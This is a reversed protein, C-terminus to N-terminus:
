VAPPVKPNKPDVVTVPEVKAPPDGEEDDPLGFLRNIILQKNDHSLFDDTTLDFTKLTENASDLMEFDESKFSTKVGFLADMVPQIISFYYPKLGREVAKTDAKGTDSMGKSTQGTIWSAPLGLYFSQKAVILELAANTATLDPKATELIDKADMMVDKGQQLGQAMAVAQTKVDASDSLGTSSRLENFKLQIAKSLNASKYLGGVSCYELASYFRIMDSKRFNQFTIFVGRDSSAKAKYDAKIEVQEQPTAKRVVKVAKDFVLFLESKENMAKALMTVIGDQTESGLCNDWLFKLDEDTIGTTRELVATLIRTYINEVDVSVFDAQRVPIPYIDPLESSGSSGLGLFSFFSFSM